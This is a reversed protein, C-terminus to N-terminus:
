ITASEDIGPKVTPVEDVKKLTYRTNSKTSGTRSLECATGAIKGLDNIQKLLAYNNEKVYFRKSEGEHEINFVVSTGYDPHTQKVGDDIFVFKKTEGDLVKLIAPAPKSVETRWDENSTQKEM